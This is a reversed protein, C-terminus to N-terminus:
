RTTNSSSKKEQPQSGKRRLVVVEPEGRLQKLSRRLGDINGTLWDRGRPNNIIVSYIDKRRKELWLLVNDATLQDLMSSYKMIFFRAIISPLSNGNIFSIIPEVISVDGNIANEVDEETYDEIAKLILWEESLLRPEPLEEEDSMNM